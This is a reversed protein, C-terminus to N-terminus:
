DEKIDRPVARYMAIAPVKNNKGKEVLSRRQEMAHRVAYLANM